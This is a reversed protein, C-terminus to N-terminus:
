LVRFRVLGAGDPEDQAHRDIAGRAVRGSARGARKGPMRRPYQSPTAGREIQFPVMVNPRTLTGILSNVAVSDFVTLKLSTCALSPACISCRRMQGFSSLSTSYSSM